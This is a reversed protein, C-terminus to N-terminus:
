SKTRKTSSCLTEDNARPLRISVQTGEGLQSELAITGRHAEVIRKALTLGLGLGGTARTRSRDARFFPQFAIRQDEPTMGVGQDQIDIHVDTEARLRLNIPVDASPTYKHANDLLNDILRRLLVPDGEVHVKPQPLIDLTLERRPYLARFRTAAAALLNHVDVQEQRLPPLGRPGNADFELRAATVVDTVLRELEGLDETIGDIDDDLSPTGGEALLELAVRIRALPTRIEHAVNAVLEREAWLLQRVRDAMDDFARGVEGLEDARDIKARANLDGEGFARAADNLKHLPRAFSRASWRSALALILLMFGLVVPSFPSLPTPPPRRFEIQGTSGDPFALPIANCAPGARGRPPPKDDRPPPKDDRHRPKDNHPPRHRGAAPECPQVDAPFTSAVLLGISTSVHVELGDDDAAADLLAQVAAPQDLQDAVRAALAAEAARYEIAPTPRDLHHLIVFGLMVIVTQVIGVLYIRLVLPSRLSPASM